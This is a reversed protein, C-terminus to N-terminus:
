NTWDSGLIQGDSPNCARQFTLLSMGASLIRVSGDALGVVMGGAHPTQALNANCAQPGTNVKLPTVQFPIGTTPINFRPPKPFSQPAGTIPTYTGWYFWANNCIQYKEVYLITNSTGDTISRALGADPVFVLPNAAYSSTAVTTLTNTGVLIRTNNQPASTDSPCVYSKLSTGYGRVAPTSGVVTNGSSSVSGNTTARYLNDLELYPLLYYFVTGSNTSTTPFRGTVPPLNGDNADNLQITALGIQRLANSCRTRNAAERVKQVAPLLLGVLVGIIAIVVLLEILTFGSRARYTSLM